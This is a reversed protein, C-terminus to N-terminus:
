SLQSSVTTSIRLEELEKRFDLMFVSLTYHGMVLSLPHRLYGKSRGPDPM